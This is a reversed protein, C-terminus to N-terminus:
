PVQPLNESNVDAIHLDGYLVRYTKSGTPMYWFIAADKDGLQLGRGDYKWNTQIQQTFMLARIIKIVIMAKEIDSKGEENLKQEITKSYKQIISLDLKEPFNNGMLSAWEGLGKILDQESLNKFDMKVSKIETYDEPIALNFASDDIMVDFNFNSFVVNTQGIMNKAIILVPMNDKTKYWIKIDISEDLYIHIGAAEENNIEKKGLRKIITDPCKKLIEITEKLNKFLNAPIIPLSSLEIAMVTKDNPNLLLIKRKDYDFIAEVGNPLKQKLKRESATCSVVPGNGIVADFTTTQIALIIQSVKAWATSTGDFVIGFQNLALTVAILIVAAVALRLIRNKSSFITRTKATELEKSVNAEIRSLIPQMSSAFDSLAQDDAKLEDYYKSCASCQRLHEILTTDEKPEIHDSICDVLKDRIKECDINM